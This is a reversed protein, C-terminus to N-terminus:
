CSPRELAMALAMDRTMPFVWSGFASEPACLTTTLPLWKNVLLIRQKLFCISRVYVDSGLHFFLRTLSSSWCGCGALPFYRL